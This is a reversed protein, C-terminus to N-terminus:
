FLLSRNLRAKRACVLQRQRKRKSKSSRWPANSSGL